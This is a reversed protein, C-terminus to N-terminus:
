HQDKRAGTCEFQLKTDLFSGDCAVASPGALVKPNRVAVKLRADLRRGVVLRDPLLM